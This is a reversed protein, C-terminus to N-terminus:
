FFTLVMTQSLFSFIVEDPFLSYNTPSIEIKSTHIATHPDQTISQLDILRHRGATRTKPFFCVSMARLQPCGSGGAETSATHTRELNFWCSLPCRLSWACVCVETHLSVNISM